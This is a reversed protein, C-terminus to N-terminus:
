NRQMKKYYTYLVQQSDIKQRTNQPVYTNSIKDDLLRAKQNDKWQLDFIDRIQQQLHPDYIPCTVEVRRDLNREMFDASGIYYKPSNENCFIFIRSHELYQGLISIAEINDSLGRVQPKLSCIGRINLRVEVGAKSAQYLKDILDPDVLSNLKLHIYAPKGERANRIEQNIMRVMRNRTSLPSVILHKYYYPTFNGELLEFVRRVEGTLNPDATLLGLDSYIKATGEHFNGTGVYVYETTKRDSKRRIYCIKSHVKLGKFGFLVNVGEDQLVKSWKINAQEDFRAQLEVLVTVNKGNKAANILANIIHSNSAVRYLSVKIEKVKSDIAAERLLDIIHNFTQYPYHLLIDKEQISALVSKFPELNPHRLPQKKSFQLQKKGVTPFGIFDKFNHYRGSAILNDNKLSLGLKRILYQLMHDSIENDYIFRVPEGKKRRNLSKQMTELFSKSVDADLDLEADRTMKINHAEIREYGFSGFVDGLCYRIVDDLLIIFKKNGISPLVLFRGLKSPIEILVYKPNKKGGQYLSVALYTSKDKIRPFQDANQLVIPILAPYVKETFYEKIFKGQEETVEKENVLYIDETELEKVIEAYIRYFDKQQKLIRKQIEDLLVQADGEILNESKKELQIRRRVTAVRVRFFEDRNNSYIGLFRLREILPNSRDAAEQLVRANFGLWSIERNIYRNITRNPM